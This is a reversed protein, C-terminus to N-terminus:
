PIPLPFPFPLPFFRAYRLGYRTDEISTVGQPLHYQRIKDDVNLASGRSLEEQSPKYMESADVAEYWAQENWKCKEKTSPCHTTRMIEPMIGMAGTEYGWVCGNVVKRALEMDDPRDFARSGLALMGGVFCSLHQTKHETTANAPKGDKPEPAIADGVLLMDRDDPIMPRYLLHKQLPSMAKEYLQRYQKNRGDLLLYQQM